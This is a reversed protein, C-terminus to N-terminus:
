GIRLRRGKGAPVVPGTAAAGAAFDPHGLETNALRKGLEVGPQDLPNVRYLAGAITTAQMLWMMLGGLHWADAAGVTMTMSPRGARALASATARCEIDLLEGLSHGGLFALAPEGGELRPIDV